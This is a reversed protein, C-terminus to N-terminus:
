FDKALKPLTRDVMNYINLNMTIQSLMHDAKYRYIYIYIYIM